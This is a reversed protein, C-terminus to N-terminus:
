RAKQAHYVAFRRTKALTDCQGFGKEILPPYRLFSNAVIVLQGRRRLYRPASELLSETAHYHTELGEHFPPNSIIADFQQGSVASLMDSVLVSGKLGNAELTAQTSAVALHNVDVFTLALKTNSALLATGIVGAGCGVDIVDGEMAPLNKLLLATGDDLSKQSFVGPLARITLTMEAIQLPYDNFWAALEFQPAPSTCEGYYLSCRRASDQKTVHGYPAFRKEISKVGSRNEGVVIWDVNAGLRHTLMALLFDAEAKSKPWYFLVLDVPQEDNYEAGAHVNVGTGAMRTAYGHHTTFVSVSKAHALLQRAFDDELEGALLVHKNEFLTLHRQAIESPATLSMM